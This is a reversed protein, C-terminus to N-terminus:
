SILRCPKIGADFLKTQTLVMKIAIYLARILINVQVSTNNWLNDINHNCISNGVNVHQQKM